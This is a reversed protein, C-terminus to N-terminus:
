LSHVRRDCIGSRVVIHADFPSLPPPSLSFMGSSEMVVLGLVHTELAIQPTWSLISLLDGHTPM